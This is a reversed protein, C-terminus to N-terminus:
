RRRAGAGLLRERVQRSGYDIAAVTILFMLVIFAVQDWANIRIREQLEFGIGGAGVVGLIAASRVNSEFFYLVHSAMVPLVQPAVGLRLVSLPGAGAARVGEVPRPDVNEIAEANLKSLAAFDGAIIALVGAMPGLGTARVFILAWVLAPIGRFIDFVRRLLFHATKSPMVNRAGLFGLPLAILASILTGLLAMAVTEAIAAALRAFAAGPNPPIMESLLRGLEAAGAALREPTFGVRALLSVFYALALLAIGARLARVWGPPGFARPTRAKATAIATPSALATRTM